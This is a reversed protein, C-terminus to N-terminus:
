RKIGYLYIDKAEENYEIAMESFTDIPIIDLLMKKTVNRYYSNTLPSDKPLCKITGHEARGEGAATILLLGGPRLNLLMALISEAWDKDHELMETSIVVDFANPMCLDKTSITIDVNCGPYIDIGIYLGKEFLFRTTGNIDHSGCDLVLGGKFHDPFKVKVKQCYTIAAQHM